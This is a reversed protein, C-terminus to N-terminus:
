GEPAGWLGRSRSWRWLGYAVAIGVSDILVDVPTGHRGQVFTQHLEDTVSYAVAIAAAALPSRWRLARLWLLFLLGYETMHIFKRGVFDVTGLGSNLDPQASLVYILAMLALPPAFRSVLQLPEARRSVGRRYTGHRSAPSGPRDGSV